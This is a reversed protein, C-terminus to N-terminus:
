HRRGIFWPFMNRRLKAMRGDPHTFVIGEASIKEDTAAYKRHALSFLDKEFWRSISEYTKPYKHWSHYALTHFARSFPVWLRHEFKLPNAQIKEGMAEGFFQGDEKPLYNREAAHLVCEIVPSGGFFELENLRNFIRTVKGNEIIISVDTGDLKEVAQVTPDNFVWEFGPSIEPTVVYEGNITKRVFPSELKPMDHPIIKAM